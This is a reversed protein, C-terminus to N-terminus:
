SDDRARAFDGGGLGVTEEVGVRDGDRMRENEDGEGAIGRENYRNQYKFNVIFGAPYTYEM